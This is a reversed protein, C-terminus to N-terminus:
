VVVASDRGGVVPLSGTHRLTVPVRTLRVPRAQELKLSNMRDMSAPVPPLAKTRYVEIFQPPVSRVATADDVEAVSSLGSEFAQVFHFPFTDLASQGVLDAPTSPESCTFVSDTDSNAISSLTM